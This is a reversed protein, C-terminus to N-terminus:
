WESKLIHTWTYEINLEWECTLVCLIQNEAGPNIQRPYHGGATDMNSCLVHNQGKKHSCRIGHHIHVMNEKDWGGHIPVYTSEMDKSNHISNCDVYSHM